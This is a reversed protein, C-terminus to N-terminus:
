RFLRRLGLWLRSLLSTAPERRRLDRVDAGDPSAPGGAAGTAPKLYEGLGDFAGRDLTLRVAGETIEAVRESPVYRSKAILGPAVVLGDFIDLETDGSVEEVKGLEAGDAGVVKWGPEILLWSVPDGTL